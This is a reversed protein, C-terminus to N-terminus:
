RHRVGPHRAARRRPLRGPRAVPSLLRGEEARRPHPRRMTEVLEVCDGVTIDAIAGGKCALLTAIRTTAIKADAQSSAPEATAPEALKEFGTPDRVQAMVSALYRHTRTLMWPLGPRIVGGCILMLLGSPLDTSDYVSLRRAHGAV